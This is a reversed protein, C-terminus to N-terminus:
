APIRVEVPQVRALECCRCGCRVGAPIAVYVNLWSYDRRLISRQDLADLRGFGWAHLLNPSFSFGRRVPRELYLPVGDAERPTWVVHGVFTIASIRTAIM